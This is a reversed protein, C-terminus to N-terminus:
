ARRDLGHVRASFGPAPVIPDLGCLRPMMRPAFIGSESTQSLFPMVVEQTAVAKPEDKELFPRILLKSHCARKRLCAVTV